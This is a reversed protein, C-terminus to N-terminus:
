LGFHQKAASILLQILVTFSVSEGKEKVTAMTKKWVSENRADDLFDCGEWSLREVIIAKNNEGYYEKVDGIVLQAEILLQLNFNIQSLDYGNIEINKSDIPNDKSEIELMLLRILEYDRKM